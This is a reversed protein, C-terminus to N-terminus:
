KPNSSISRRAASTRREIEDRDYEGKAAARAYKEVVQANPGDDDDRIAWVAGLVDASEDPDDHLVASGMVLWFVHDDSVDVDPVDGGDDGDIDAGRAVPAVGLTALSALVDRRPQDDM